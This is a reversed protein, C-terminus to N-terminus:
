RFDIQLVGGEDVFCPPAGRAGWGNNKGPPTNSLSRRENSLGVDLLVGRSEISSFM